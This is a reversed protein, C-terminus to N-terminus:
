SKGNGNDELTDTDTSNLHLHDLLSDIMDQAPPLEGEEDRHMVRHTAELVKTLMLMECLGHATTIDHCVFIAPKNAILEEIATEEERKVVYARYTIAYDGKETEEFINPAISSVLFFIHDVPKGDDRTGELRHIEQPFNVVPCAGEFENIVWELSLRATDKDSM